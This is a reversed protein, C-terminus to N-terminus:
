LDRSSTQFGPTPLIPKKPLDSYSDAGHREGLKQHEGVIKKEQLFMVRIEAETKM